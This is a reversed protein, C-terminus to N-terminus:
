SFLLVLWMGMNLGLGAIVLHLGKLEWWSINEWSIKELLTGKSFDPWWKPLKLVGIHREAVWLLLGIGVIIFPLSYLMTPLHLIVATMGSEMIRNFMTIVTGINYGISIVSPLFFAGILVWSVNAGFKGKNLLLFAGIVVHYIIVLWFMIM